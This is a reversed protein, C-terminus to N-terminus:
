SVERLSNQDIPGERGRAHPAGFPSRGTRRSMHRTHYLHTFNRRLASHNTSRWRTHRASVQGTIPAANPTVSACREPRHHLPRLKCKGHCAAPAAASGAPSRAQSGLVHGTIRPKLHHGPQRPEAAILLGEPCPQEGDGPVPRSVIAPGPSRRGATGSSSSRLPADAFTGRRRPSPAPPPKWAPRSPTSRM